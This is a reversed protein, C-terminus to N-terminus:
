ASSGSQKNPGGSSKVMLMLVGVVILSDAINFTPWHPHSPGPDLWYWDIFDIVYRRALRDIFNGVAGSLVLALALRLYWQQEGLRRYYYLVFGIAAISVAIFFINRVDEPLQRLMGWAAGPNEVYDMRWFPAWVTHAEGQAPHECRYLCAVKEAFTAAGRDHFGTTLREVALFKTWQDFGVLVVFLLGLQGWKGFPTRSM